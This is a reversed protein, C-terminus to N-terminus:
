SRMRLRIAHWRARLQVTENHRSDFRDDFHLFTADRPSLRNTRPKM